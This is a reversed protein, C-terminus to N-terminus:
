AAAMEALREVTRWNRATSVLPLRRKELVALAPSGTIGGDSWVYIETGALRIRDPGVDEDEVGAVDAAKPKASLFIVQLRKPDRAAEDPLPNDGVVRAMQRASRVVVPVAFGFEEEIATALTGAMRAPTEGTTYVVNGSRLHTVVDTAGLGEVLARLPAMGVPRAKGVNIGRLLAVQRTM